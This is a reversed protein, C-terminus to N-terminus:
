GGSRPVEPLSATQNIYQEYGEPVFGYKKYFQAALNPNASLAEMAASPIKSQDGSVSPGTNQQGAMQQGSGEGAGHLNLYEQIFYQRARERSGGWPKFDSDDSSFWGASENIRADAYAEAKPMLGTRGQPAELPIVENTEPDVRVLKESFGDKGKVTKIIPKEPGSLKRPDELYKIRASLSQYEDSDPKVKARAVLLRELETTNKTPEPDKLKGRSRLYGEPDKLIIEVGRDYAMARQMLGDIPYQRVPDDDATSQNETKPVVEGNRRVGIVVTGPQKGRTVGAVGELEDAVQSQEILDPSTFQVARATQPAELRQTGNQLGAISSRLNQIEEFRPDSSLDFERGNKRADLAALAVQDMFNYYRDQLKMRYEAQQQKWQTDRRADALGRQSRTYALEEEALTDAKAQRERQIRRDKVGEMFSFGQMFGNAANATSLGAM